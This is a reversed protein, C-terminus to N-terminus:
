ARIGVRVSTAIFTLLQLTEPHLKQFYVYANEDLYDLFPVINELNNVVFFLHIIGSTAFKLHCHLGERSSRLLLM